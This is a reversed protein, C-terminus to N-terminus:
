QKQQAQLLDRIETLLKEEASPEAPAEAPAEEAEKKKLAEMKNKASNMAKIVCFIVLAVLIFDVITSIFSGIGITVGATVVEGASDLVEPQLVINFQTFDMGGFLYGLAPMVVDNVLSTTIKGFATAIIVGVAMDVVNGRSIFERFEAIFGKAKKAPENAM